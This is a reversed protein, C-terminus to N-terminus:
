LLTKCFDTHLKTYKEIKKAVFDANYKGTDNYFWDEHGVIAISSTNWKYSLREPKVVEPCGNDKAFQIFKTHIKKRKESSKMNFSRFLFDSNNSDIQLYLDYSSDEDKISFCNWKCSLVEWIGKKTYSWTAGRIDSSEKLVTKSLEIYPGKPSESPPYGREENFLWKEKIDMAIYLNELTDSEFRKYDKLANLFDKRTYVGYNVTEDRKHEASDHSSFYVYSYENDGSKYIKRLHNLHNLYNSNHVKDAIIFVTKNNDFTLCVTDIYLYGIYNINTYSVNVKALISKLFITGAEHLKEGKYNEKAWQLLWRLCADQIVEKTAYKFQNPKEIKRNM